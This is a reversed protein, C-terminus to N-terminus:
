NDNADLFELTAALLAPASMMTYHTRAPLVALRSPPRAIGTGPDGLGGGVMEYMDTAHSPPFIDADACM